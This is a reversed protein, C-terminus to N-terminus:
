LRNMFRAFMMMGEPWPGHGSATNLHGANGADIFDSGWAAALDGAREFGCYPDNRSAILMSPFPLPDFSIPAYSTLADDTDPADVDAPAVLFAGAIKDAPMAPAAHVAAIVGLSHAVLIAPKTATAAARIIPVSWTEPLPNDWNDQEVRRATSFKNEWRSQWHDKGSGTWGPVILIDADAIKM